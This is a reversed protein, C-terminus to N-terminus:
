MLGPGTARRPKESRGPKRRERVEAVPKEGARVGREDKGFYGREFSNWNSGLSKLSM